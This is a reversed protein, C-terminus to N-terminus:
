TVFEIPSSQDKRKRTVFTFNIFLFGGNINCNWYEHIMLFRYCEKDELSSGVVTHKPTTWAHGFTSTACIQYGVSPFRHLIQKASVGRKTGSVNSNLTKIM